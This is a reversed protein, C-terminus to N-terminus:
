ISYEMYDDKTLVGKEKIIGFLVSMPANHDEFALMVFGDSPQHFIHFDFEVKDIIALEVDRIAKNYLLQAKSLKNILRKM